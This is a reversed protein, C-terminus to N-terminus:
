DGPMIYWRDTVVDARALGGGLPYCAFGFKFEEPEFGLEDLARALVPTKMVKLKGGEIRSAELSGGRMWALTAALVDSIREVDKPLMDFLLGDNNRISSYGVLAGSGDERLEVVTTADGHRYRLWAPDRVIGCDIPLNRRASGWLQSFEDSFEKSPRVTLGSAPTSAGSRTPAAVCPYSTMPANPFGILRGIRFVRLFARQPLGYLLAYGKERALEMAAKFMGVMPHSLVNLSRLRLGGKLIPASIQIADVEREGVAVRAPRFSQQGLVAGEDDVAIVILCKGHPTDVFWENWTKEDLAGWGADEEWLKFLGPLDDRTYERFTMAGSM